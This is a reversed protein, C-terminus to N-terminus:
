EGKTEAITAFPVVSIKSDLWVSYPNPGEENEGLLSYWLAHTETPDDGWSLGGTIFEGYGPIRLMTVDNYDLSARIDQIMKKHADKISQYFPELLIKDEPNESNHLSWLTEFVLAEDSFASSMDYLKAFVEKDKENRLVIDLEQIIAETDFPDEKKYFKRIQADTLWINWVSMGAGM